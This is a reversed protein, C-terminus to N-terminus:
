GGPKRGIVLLNDSTARPMRRAVFAYAMVGLLWAVPLPHALWALAIVSLASLATKWRPKWLLAFAWLSLGTGLYFNMFGMHFAWGYALMAIIALM